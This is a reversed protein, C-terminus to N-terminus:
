QRCYPRQDSPSPCIPCKPHHHQPPSSQQIFCTRRSSCLGSWRRFYVRNSHQGNQTVQTHRRARRSCAMCLCDPLLTRWTPSSSRTARGFYRQFAACRGLCGRLRSRTLVLPYDALRLESLAAARTFKTTCLLSMCAAPSSSVLMQILDTNELFQTAAAPESNRPQVNSM